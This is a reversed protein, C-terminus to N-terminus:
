IQNQMSKMRQYLDELTLGMGTGYDIAERLLKELQKKHAMNLKDRVFPMVYYGKGRSVCIIEERALADVAKRATTVGINYREAINRISPLREGALYEGRVVKLELDTKIVKWLPDTNDITKKIM